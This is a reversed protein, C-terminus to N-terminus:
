SKWIRRALSSNLEICVRNSVNVSRGVARAQGSILNILKYRSFIRPMGSMEPNRLREPSDNVKCNFSKSASLFVSGKSIIQIGQCNSHQRKEKSQSAICIAFPKAWTQLQWRTASTGGSQAVAVECIPQQHWRIAGSTGSGGWSSSVFNTAIAVGPQM